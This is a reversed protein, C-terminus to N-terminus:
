PALDLEPYLRFLDHTSWAVRRSSALYAAIRPRAAVRDHLRSLKPFKPAFRANAAPFGYRFGSMIQFMSLDVYSAESGVLHEGDGAELVREFYGLFKPIRERVFSETRKRAEPKQDEYYLGAGIPHHADHAETALDALTLQLENARLRSPEDGPVLGHHSALYALINATQSLVLDGTRLIPPAFPAKTGGEHLVKMLAKIGGGEEEPLRAVDVYSAGADELALRVFEGRGQITPWYFLEYPANKVGRVERTQRV